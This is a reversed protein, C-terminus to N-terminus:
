PQHPPTRTEHQKTEKYWAEFGVWFPSDEDPQDDLVNGDKDTVIPGGHYGLEFHWVQDNVTLQYAPGAFCIHWKYQSM